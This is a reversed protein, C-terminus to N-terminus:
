PDFISFSLSTRIDIFFLTLLAKTM